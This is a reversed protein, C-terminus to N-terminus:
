VEMFFLLLPSLGFALCSLKFTIDLLKDENM